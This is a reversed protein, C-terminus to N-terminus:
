ASLSSLPWSGLLSIVRIEFQGFFFHLHGRRMPFILCRGDLWDFVYDIRDSRGSIDLPTISGQDCQAIKVPVRPLPM